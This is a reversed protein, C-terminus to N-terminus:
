LNGLQTNVKINKHLRFYIIVLIFVLWSIASIWVALRDTTAPVYAIRLHNKKTKTRVLFTGRRSFSSKIAKQNNTIRYAHSGYNLCPLDITNKRSNTQVTYNIANASGYGKLYHKKGNIIAQNSSLDNLYPQAAQPFYDFLANQKKVASFDAFTKNTIVPQNVLYSDITSQVSALTMGCSVFIAFYTFFKRDRFGDLLVTIGYAIILSAFLTIFACLRSAFQIVTVFTHDFWHWPFAATTMWFLILFLIASISIVKPTQRYHWLIYVAATIGVVILFTGPTHYTSM